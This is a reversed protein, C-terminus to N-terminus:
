PVFTCLICSIGFESVLNFSAASTSSYPFANSLEFLRRLWYMTTLSLSLRETTDSEKRGWPNYLGHFERPWFVPTPLWEKRWPFKGLGPILGLEGANCASEEGASGGLFGKDHPNSNSGIWMPGKPSIASAARM